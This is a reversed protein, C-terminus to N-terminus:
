RGNEIEQVELIVGAFSEEDMTLTPIARFTRKLVRYRVNVDGQSGENLIEDGVEPIHESQYDEITDTHFDGGNPILRLYIM